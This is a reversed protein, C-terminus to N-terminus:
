GMGSGAFGVLDEVLGDVADRAGANGDDEPVPPQFIKLKGEAGLVFAGCAVKAISVSPHTIDLAMHGKAYHALAAMFPQRKDQSSQGTILSQGQQLMDRLDNRSITLDIAKLAGNDDIGSFSFTVLVDKALKELAIAAQADSGLSIDALYKELTAVLYKTPLRLVSAHCDFTTSLFGIFTQRLSGPMRSMLVPFRSFGSFIEGGAEVSPRLLIASYVIKEYAVEVVIGRSEEYTLDGGEGVGGPNAEVDLEDLWEDENGLFKFVVSKLSGVRALVNEDETLGVRVGRLTDGALLDRFRSAHTRLSDPTLLDDGHYLPSLRHLTFTTNYLPYVPGRTTPPM